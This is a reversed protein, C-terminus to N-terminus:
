ASTYNNSDWFVIHKEDIEIFNDPILIERRPAEYRNGTLTGM